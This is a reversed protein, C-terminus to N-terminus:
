YPLPRVWARDAACQVKLCGLGIDSREHDSMRALADHDSAVRGRAHLWATITGLMGRAPKDVHPM